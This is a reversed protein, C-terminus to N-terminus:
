GPICIKSGTQLNQPDIGPNSQLLKDLPIGLKRAILYFTDGEEVIWYIGSPCPNEASLKKRM